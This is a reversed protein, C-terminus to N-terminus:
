HANDLIKIEPHLSSYYFILAKKASKISSLCHTKTGNNLGSVQKRVVHVSFGDLLRPKMHVM